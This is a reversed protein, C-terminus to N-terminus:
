LREPRAAAGPHGRQRPGPPLAAAARLRDAGGRRARHDRGPYRLRPFRGPDRQRRQHRRRRTYARELFHQALLEPPFRTMVGFALAAMGAGATVAIALDRLRRTTTIAESARSGPVDFRKPLWRLGLLLLVTTVVEVLLQTLALDPASFWVFTVCTVLGAGGLLILAALRHFKAQWAAGLACAAGIAWVLALVPDVDSPTLNGPGLGRLYVAWAAALVAVCVVLRLQPQLRRTGFLGELTRALRWSLFVMTREFMRRGELGRIVAPWRDGEASAAPTGPLSRCRRGAGILSMLLPLNFGHWVALSYEPTAAGLVSHAAMDLFPGVTAAPLVGVIICALVLIEVPFRMWAPPEHPTRPLDVPDPGFFAGHIFRLSYAVSFASAVTAAFPLVDILLASSAQASLAEAFFMEKSLFGNLLPVGAMAAAAVMALRATFPMSRNLGSLRRIDRTGTEHDIIGAAM